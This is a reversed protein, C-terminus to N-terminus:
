NARRAMTADARVSLSERRSRRRARRALAAALCRWHFQAGPQRFSRDRSLQPRHAQGARTRPFADSEQVRRSGAVLALAAKSTAQTGASIICHRVGNMSRGAALQQNTGACKESPSIQRFGRESLPTVRTKQHDHQATREVTQSGNGGEAVRVPHPQPAVFRQQNITRRRVSLLDGPTLETAKWACDGSRRKADK